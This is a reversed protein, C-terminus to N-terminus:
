PGWTALTATWLIQALALPLVAAALWRPAPIRRLLWAVLVVKLAWAGIGAVAAAAHPLGALGPLDSGGLLLTTLLAAHGVAVLRPAPRPVALLAAVALAAAAFPQVWLGWRLGAQGALIVQPDLSGAGVLAAMLAVALALVRGADASSIAAALLVALALGLADPHDVLQLPLGGRGAACQELDAASLRLGTQGPCLVGVPAVALFALAPLLTAWPGRRALAALGALGALRAATALAPTQPPAFVLPIRQPAGDAVFTLTAAGTRPAHDPGEFHDPDARLHLVVETGPDIARPLTPDTITFASWDPERPDLRFRSLRLPADGDHRLRLAVDTRAPDFHVVRPAPVPTSEAGCAALVGLLALGPGFSLHPAPAPDTV